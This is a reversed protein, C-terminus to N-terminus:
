LPNLLRGIAPANQISAGERGRTHMCRYSVGGTVTPFTVVAASAVVAVARAARVRQTQRTTCGPIRNRSAPGPACAGPAPPHLAALHTVCPSGGFAWPCTGPTDAVYLTVVDRRPKASSRPPGRTARARCCACHKCRWRHNPQRISAEIKQRSSTQLAVQASMQSSAASRRQRLPHSEVAHPRFSGIRPTSGVVLPNVTWREVASGGRLPRPSSGAVGKPVTPFILAAAVVAVEGAARCRPTERAGVRSPGGSRTTAPARAGPDPHLSALTVVYDEWLVVAANKDHHATKM